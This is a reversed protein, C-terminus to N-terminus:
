LRVLKTCFAFSGSDGFDNSWSGTGDTMAKISDGQFTVSVKGQFGARETVTLDYSLEYAPSDDLRTLIPNASLIMEKKEDLSSYSGYVTIGDDMVRAELTNIASALGWTVDNTELDAVMVTGVDEAFLTGELFPSWDPMRETCLVFDSAFSTSAILFSSVLLLRKM